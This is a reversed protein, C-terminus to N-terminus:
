SFRAKLNHMLHSLLFKASKRRISSIVMKGTINALSRKYRGEGGMFDYVKFGRKAYHAIALSHVLLGPKIRNDQEYRIGSLYFYVCERYIFNYLYCIPKNAVELVLMDIAGSDYNKKILTRHFQLFEPNNFGSNRDGWRVKHLEGAADLYNLAEEVNQARKLNIEGRESYLKQTRTIQSRSNRSLTKVYSTFDEFAPQLTTAYSVTRWCTHQMLNKSRPIETIENNSVGIMLEDYKLLSHEFFEVLAARIAWERGKECLLDNYEMWIQDKAGRGTRNLWIQNSPVGYKKGISNCIFGLGVIDNNDSITLLEPTYEVFALWNSIWHWSTFFTAASHSELKLWNEQLESLQNKDISALSVNLRSM